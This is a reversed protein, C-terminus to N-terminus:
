IIYYDIDLETGSQHLFAIIDKDMSLIPNPYESDACLYPIIELSLEADLKQLMQKVEKEKGVFHKITKRVMNNIDVDYKRNVEIEYGNKGLVYNETFASIARGASLMREHTDADVLYDSVGKLKLFLYTTCEHSPKKIINAM